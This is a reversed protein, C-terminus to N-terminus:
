FCLNFWMSGCFHKRNLISILGKKKRFLTKMNYKEKPFFMKGSWKGFDVEKVKKRERAERKRM